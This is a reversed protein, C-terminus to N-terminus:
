AIWAHKRCLVHMIYHQADACRQQCGRTHYTALVHAISGEHANFKCFSGALSGISLVQQVVSMSEKLCTM